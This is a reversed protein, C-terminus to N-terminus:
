ILTKIYVYNNCAMSSKTHLVYSFRYTWIIFLETVTLNFFIQLISLLKYLMEVCVYTYTHIHSTCMHQISYKCITGIKYLM